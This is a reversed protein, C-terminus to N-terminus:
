TDTGGLSDSENFNGMNGFGYVMILQSVLLLFASIMVRNIHTMTRLLYIM